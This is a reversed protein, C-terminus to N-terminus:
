WGLTFGVRAGVKGRKNFNKALGAHLAANSRVLAGLQMAGAWAGDYTAVNGTLNIAKDPLFSGGGMAIAIATSGALNNDLRRLNDTFDLSVAELADIRADFALDAAQLGAIQTTHAAVAANTAFLQSGNVAETSAAGLAGAAVGSITRGGVAVQNAATNM